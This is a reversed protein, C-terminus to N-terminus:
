TGIMGVMTAVLYLRQNKQKHFRAVHTFVITDNSKMLGTVEAKVSVPSISIPVSRGNNIKPISQINFFDEFVRHCENSIAIPNVLGSVYFYKCVLKNLKSTYINNAVNHITEYYVAKRYFLISLWCFKIISLLHFHIIDPKVKRIANFLIIAWTINGKTLGLNIYSVNDSLEPLYYGNNDLNDDVLTILTVENNKDRSLENCLDLTLRQAGALGLNYSIQLIKM